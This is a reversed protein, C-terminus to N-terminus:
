GHMGIVVLMQLRDVIHALGQQRLYLLEKDGVVFLAPLFKPHGPRASRLFRQSEEFGTDLRVLVRFLLLRARPACRLWESASAPAGPLACSRGILAVKRTARRPPMRRFAGAPCPQPLGGVFPHLVGSDPPFSPSTNVLLRWRALEPSFSIFVSILALQASNRTVAPTATASSLGHIPVHFSFASLLWNVPVVHFSSSAPPPFTRQVYPFSDKQYVMSPFSCGPRYPRM